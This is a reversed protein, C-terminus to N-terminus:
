ILQELARAGKSTLRLSTVQREILGRSLFLDLVRSPIGKARIAGKKSTGLERLWLLDDLPILSHPRSDDYGFAHRSTRARPEQPASMLPAGHAVKSAQSARTLKM